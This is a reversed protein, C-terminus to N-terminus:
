DSSISYILAVHVHVNLEFHRFTFIQFMENPNKRCDAREWYSVSTVEDESRTASVSSWFSSHWQFLFPLFAKNQLWATVVMMSVRWWFMQSPRRRCVSAWMGAATHQPPDSHPLVRTVCGRSQQRLLGDACCVVRLARILLRLRLWAPRGRRPKTTPSCRVELPLFLGFVSTNQCFM